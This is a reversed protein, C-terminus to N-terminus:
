DFIRSEVNTSFNWLKRFANIWNLTLRPCKCLFIGWVQKGQDTVSLVFKHNFLLIHIITLCILQLELQISYLNILSLTPTPYKYARLNSQFFVSSITDSLQFGCSDFRLRASSKKKWFQQKVLIPSDVRNNLNSDPSFLALFKANVKHPHQLSAFILTCKKLVM